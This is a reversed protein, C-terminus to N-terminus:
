LAKKLWGLVRLANKAGSNEPSIRANEVIRAVQEAVKPVDSEKFQDFLLRAAEPTECSPPADPEGADGISAEQLAARLADIYVRNRGFENRSFDQPCVRLRRYTLFLLQPTVEMAARMDALITEITKAADKKNRAETYRIVLAGVSKDTEALFSVYQELLVEDLGRGLGGDLLGVVGDAVSAAPNKALVIRMWNAFEIAAIRTMQEYTPLEWRQGNKHVLLHAREYEFGADAKVLRAAAAHIAQGVRIEAWARRAVSETETLETFPVIDANGAEGLSSRLRMKGLIARLGMGAEFKRNFFQVMESNDHDFTEWLAVLASLADFVTNM